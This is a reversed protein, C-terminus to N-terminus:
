MNDRSQLWWEAFLLLVMAGALYVLWDIYTDKKEEPRDLDPLTEEIKRINSEMAPIKVFFKEKVIEGSLLEQTLEYTGPLSVNMMYPFTTLPEDGSIVDSGKKIEVSMGRARITVNEDVEFSSADLTPPLLYDFLNKMLIPFTSNGNMTLNSYRPSIGLVAIKEMPTDKFLLVPTDNASKWLEMYSGDQIIEMYQSIMVNDASVGKLIVHGEGDLLSSNANNYVYPNKKVSFGAGDPAIDPNLMFVVGDNPLTEPMASPTDGPESLYYTEYIYFDYGYNPVQQSEKVVFETIEISWIHSYQNRMNGLVANMFPTPKPTAYLIKLTPKTGNYIYFTNDVMLSDVEEIAISVYDYSFVKEENPIYYYAYLDSENEMEQQLDANMFIVRKTADNFCEVEMEYTFSDPVGDKGVNPSQVTVALKITADRGYCAIDVIFSYYNDEYETYANLIAANWSTDWSENEEDWAVNVVSVLEPLNMYQTDTFIYVQTLPNNTLVEESIALAGEINAKGYSCLMNETEADKLLNQLTEEIDDESTANVRSFLAESKDKCLIVTVLGDEDFTKEVQAQAQEIAKEFRTTGLDDLTWMSASADIIVVVEKNYTEAKIVQNPQALIGACLTLIFIQCLILLLNRLKSIPLRKKRYKLSLKWIYTSSILKQQYNPKILYIILWAVLGLLGLLGLPTLLTM